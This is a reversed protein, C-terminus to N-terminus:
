EAPLAPAAEDPLQFHRMLEYMMESLSKTMTTIYIQDLREQSNIGFNSDSNKFSGLTNREGYSTLTANIVAEVENFHSVEWRVAHIKLVPHGEQPSENRRLVRYNMPLQFSQLVISIAEDYNRYALREMEDALSPARSQYEPPASYRFSIQLTDREDLFIFRDSDKRQGMGVASAAFFCFLILLSAIKM